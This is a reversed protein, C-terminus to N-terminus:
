RTPDYNYPLADNEDLQDAKSGDSTDVLKMQLGAVASDDDNLNQGRLAQLVLNADENKSIEARM